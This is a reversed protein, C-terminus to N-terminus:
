RLTNKYARHVKRMVSAQSRASLQAVSADETRGERRSLAM